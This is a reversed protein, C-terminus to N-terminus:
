EHESGVRTDDKLNAFLDCGCRCMELSRGRHGDEYPETPLEKFVKSCALCYFRYGEGLVEERTAM